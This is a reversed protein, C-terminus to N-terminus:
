LLANFLGFRATDHELFRTYQGVQQEGGHLFASDLGCVQGKIGRIAGPDRNLAAPPEVLTVVSSQLAEVFGGGAVLVTILLEHQPTTGVVGWGWGDVGARFERLVPIGAVGAIRNRVGFAELVDELAHQGVPIAVDNRCQLGTLGNQNRRM